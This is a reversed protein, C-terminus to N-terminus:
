GLKFVATRISKAKSQHELLLKHSAKNQFVTELNNIPGMPIGHELIGESIEESHLERSATNLISLLEKRNSLREQNTTFRSDTGRSAINLITCLSKFQKDNGIALLFLKDDKSKIVEGYPAINPHLSGKRRPILNLNLYNSGQNALSAIATDYLSVSVKSGKGTKLKQILAVLIGEKLQHATLIDILAVPMKTAPGDASGNMHMWGTEAQILADFGPRSDEEGYATILGYIINPNIEKISNYDMRLNLASQHRFNSIVIDAKKILSYVEQKDSADKLNRFLVEKGWNVSHYYASTKSEKNESPHKWSRTVDGNTLKNEIKYVTAGLEAFFMGVAPGALVSALEVVILDKFVENTMNCLYLLLSSLM